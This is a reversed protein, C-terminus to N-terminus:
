EISVDRSGVYDSVPLDICILTIAVRMRRQDQVPRDV